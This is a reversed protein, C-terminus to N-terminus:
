LLEKIKVRIDASKMLSEGVLIAHVGAQKLTLVDQRSHIGSESILIRDKPIHPILTLTTTLNTHFTNLDRNNIGLIPAELPLVRDLEEGTHIEVLCDLGLEKAVVLFDKLQGDELM